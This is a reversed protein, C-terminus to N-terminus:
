TDESGSPRADEVGVDTAQLIPQSPEILVMAGPVAAIEAGSLACEGLRGIHKRGQTDFTGLGLDACSGGPQRAIKPYALPTGTLANFEDPLRM